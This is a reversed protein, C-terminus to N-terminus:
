PDARGRELSRAGCAVATGAGIRGRDQVSAQEGTSLLMDMERATPLDSGQKALDVLVDTTHGMASVVMVVRNGAQQARIAKRAVNKVKAADAVSLEANM